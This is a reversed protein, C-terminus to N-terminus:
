FIEAISQAIENMEEPNLSLKSKSFNIDEVANLPILHIHAHPVELGVVAIGIRQCSVIKKQANALRKAFQWLRGYEHSEIDFIYDTERKPVVLAHGKSLPAIDLFALFEETEALKYCPMEGQIIKTFISSM